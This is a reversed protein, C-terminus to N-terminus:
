ETDVDPGAHPGEVTLRFLSFSRESLSRPPAVVESKASDRPQLWGRFVDDMGYGAPVESDIEPRAALERVELTAFEAEFRKALKEKMAEISPTAEEVEVLCDWKSLLIDVSSHQGLANVEVLADLLALANSCVLQRTDLDALREGDLLLSVGESRMLLPRLDLAAQEDFRARKYLEGSVDALVLHELPGSLDEPRVVLHLFRIGDAFPTRGTDPVRKGSEQRALFCCEEFAPLTESGAFIYGAFPGKLFQEHIEALLTTKGTKAEGILAIMRADVSCTIRHIDAMPIRDGSFLLHDDGEPPIEKEEAPEPESPDPTPVWSHHPCDDLDLGEQCVGDTAVACGDEACAHAREDTM